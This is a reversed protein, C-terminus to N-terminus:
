DVKLTEIKIDLTQIKAIIDETKNHCSDSGEGGCACGIREGTKPHVSSCSKKFEGDKKFFMKVAFGAFALGLFVISILLLKLFM